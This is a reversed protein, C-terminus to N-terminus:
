FVQNYEKVETLGFPRVQDLSDKGKTLVTIKLDKPNFHKKIAANVRSTSISGVENIFNKLYDDSIGYLRLLALNFGLREPTEIARPFTGILFNKAADVETSSVGDEYFKKFVKLSEGITTGVSQNKTFTSIAFSGRDMKADFSSSIGYTLGLNIRIQDMLRSSFNGGLINNAVRLVLFDPDNRKIGMHGMVIQSQTLDPKDILRINLGTYSPPAPYFRPAIESKEWAGFGKKLKSVLDTGFDGTVVLVANNPRFLRAYATVLDKRKIAKVDRELGSVPKAYPHGGFLYAGFAVDVFSDPHDILSRIGALTNKRERELEQESFSPNLMVDSFISLLKDQHLSLGSVQFWSFDEGVNHEFESGLQGLADAIQSASMTKTGKVLVQGTLNALGSKGMPDRASGDKILLGFSISPLGRNEIFIVQLGNAWDETKYERLTFGSGSAPAATGTESKQGHSCGFALLLLPFVILRSKM